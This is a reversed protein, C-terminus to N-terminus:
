HAGLPRWSTLSDPQRVSFTSRYDISLWFFSPHVSFTDCHAPSSSPGSIFRRANFSSDPRHGMALLSRPPLCGLVVDSPATSSLEFSLPFSLPGHHAAATTVPLNDSGPPLQRRFQTSLVSRAPSSFTVTPASIGNIFIPM